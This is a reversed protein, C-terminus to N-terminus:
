HNLRTSSSNRSLITQFRSILTIRTIRTHITVRQGTVKVKVWVIGQGEDQEQEVMSGDLSPIQRPQGVPLVRDSATLTLHSATPRYSSGASTVGSTFQNSRLLFLRVTRDASGSDRSDLSILRFSLWFLM